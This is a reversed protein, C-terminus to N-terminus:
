RRRHIAATAQDEQSSLAILYTSGTKIIADHNWM